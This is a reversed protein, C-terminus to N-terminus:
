CWYHNPRKEIRRKDQNNINSKLKCLACSSILSLFYFSISLRLLWRMFMVLRRYINNLAACNISLRCNWRYYKRKHQGHIRVRSLSSFHTNINIKTAEFYTDTHLLTRFEHVHIGFTGSKICFRLLVLRYTYPLLIVFSWLSCFFSVCSFPSFYLRVLTSMFFFVFMNFITHQSAHTCTHM